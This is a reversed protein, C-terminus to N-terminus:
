PMSHVMHAIPANPWILFFKTTLTGHASLAAMRSYNAEAWRLITLSLPCGLFCAHCDLCNRTLHPTNVHPSAICHVPHVLLRRLMHLAIPVICLKSTTTCQAISTTCYALCHTHVTVQFNHQLIRHWPHAVHGLLYLVPHLAITHPM